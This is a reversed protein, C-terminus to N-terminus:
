LITRALTWVHIEKVGTKRFCLALETMTIGTTVVDDVLAVVKNELIPDRSQIEFANRVNKKRDTASLGTQQPTDKSRKVLHKCLPIGAERSITRGIELAQNYGRQRLRKKHLPVPIILDPWGSMRYEQTLTKLLYMTLVRGAM